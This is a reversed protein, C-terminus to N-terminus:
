ANALQFIDTTITFTFTDDETLTIDSGNDWFMVLPDAPSTQDENFVVGFRIGDWGGAGSTWAGPSVALCSATGTTESWTNTIDKGKTTYGTGTVETAIIDALVADASDVGAAQFLAVNLQDTNLNHLGLGLDEVFQNFYSAAAM